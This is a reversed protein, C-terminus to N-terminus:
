LSGRFAIGGTGTYPTESSPLCTQESPVRGAESSYKRAIALQNVAYAERHESTVDGHALVSFDLEEIRLDEM